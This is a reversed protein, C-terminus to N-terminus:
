GKRRALVVVFAFLLILGLAVPLTASNIVRATSLFDPYGTQWLVWEGGISSALNPHGSVLVILADGNDPNIRFTSNIAPDNGGDHGYVSDGAQTPAYLITGLGWIASGFLYAQPERIAKQGDGDILSKAM